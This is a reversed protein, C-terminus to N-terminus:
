DSMCFHARNAKVRKFQSENVFNGLLSEMTEMIHLKRSLDKMRNKYVEERTDKWLRFVPVNIDRM